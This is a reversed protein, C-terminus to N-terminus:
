VYLPDAEIHVGSLRYLSSLLPQLTQEDGKLLLRWGYHGKVRRRGLVRDGLKEQEILSEVSEILRGATRGNGQAVSILFLRVYPPFEAIKRKKLEDGYFQRVDFLPSIDVPNRGWTYLVLKEPRLADLLNRFVQFMKEGARYGAIRPFDEWGCLILLGATVYYLKSLVNTGVLVAARDATLNPLARIGAQGETEGTVRIVNTGPFLSALCHELYEAGVQAFRILDSGCTSCREEYPVTQRCTACALTEGERNYSIVSSCRPCLFPQRCLSCYLYSAYARRPTHVAVHAGRGLTERIVDTLAPSVLSGTERVRDSRMRSVPGPLLAPGEELDILGEGVLKMTEVPPSLSGMVLEAGEMEARQAALRVANFKFAEENRYEDEEPREIIVLGNHAVPLFVCSKNGLILHGGELRARFYTEAKRKVPMASRYWFVAGPFRELFFRYFYEGVNHYDPLLMLVNRGHNLHEAILSAYRERRHAAQGLFVKARGDVQPRSEAEDPEIAKGTFVDHLRIESRRLHGLITERGERECAKKFTLDNLGSFSEHDTRVICYKELNVTSSLAYKLALGIPAAYYDAAWRCLRFCADDILPIADVLEQVPKLGSEEGEAVDMVFGTLSRNRFPVKVRALRRTYPAINEPLSYSFARAIPLPLVVHAIM